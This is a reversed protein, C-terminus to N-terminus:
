AEMTPSVRLPLAGRALLGEECQFRLVRQGQWLVEARGTLMLLDGGAFDPFLLGCRADLALNGFTNFFSNGPYDPVLLAGGADVQVFGSPGGRHSVDVGGDVVGAPAATAIFFTDAARVQAIAHDPLEAEFREVVPAAVAGTWLPERENIYKPCNGFSQLLDVAMEGSSLASVVGNARNRRRTALEIGLLGVPQGRALADALPDWAALSAALRLTKADPTRVFGPPGALLTAWPRDRADRAGLLMFPLKEFLERHQEPMFDRFVRPGVQAMREAVGARAQVAREGAHFDNM